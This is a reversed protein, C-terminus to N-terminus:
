SFTEPTFWLAGFVLSHKTTLGAILATAFIDMEWMPSNFCGFVVTLTRIKARSGTEM